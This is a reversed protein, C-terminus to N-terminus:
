RVYLNRAATFVAERVSEGRLVVLTSTHVGSEGMAEWLARLERELTM